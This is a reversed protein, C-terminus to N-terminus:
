YIPLCYPGGGVFPMEACVYGEDMRCEDDGICDKFCMMSFYLDVCAAGPGCESSYMCDASCYGGPFGFGFLETICTRAGSPILSCDYSDICADGVAGYLDMCIFNCVGTAIDWQGTCATGPRCALGCAGCRSDGVPLCMGDCCLNYVGLSPDFCGDMNLGPDSTGWPCPMGCGGCHRPDTLLNVCEGYCYTLGPPCTPPLDLEDDAPDPIIDPRPDPFADFPYDPPQDMNIDPQWDLSAEDGDAMDTETSDAAADDGDPSLSSYCSCCLMLALSVVIMKM